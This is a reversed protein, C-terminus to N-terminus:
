IPKLQFFLGVPPTSGSPRSSGPVVLMSFTKHVPPTDKAGKMNSNIELKNQVFPSPPSPPISLEGRRGEGGGGRHLSSTFKSQGPPPPLTHSAPCLSKVKERHPLPFPLSPSPSSRQFTLARFIVYIECGLTCFVSYLICRCCFGHVYM